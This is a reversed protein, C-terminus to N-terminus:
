RMPTSTRRSAHRLEEEIPEEDELIANIRHKERYDIEKNVAQRFNLGAAGFAFVRRYVDFHRQLKAYKPDDSLLEAAKKVSKCNASHHVTDFISQNARAQRLLLRKAEQVTITM